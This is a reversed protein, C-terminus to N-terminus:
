VTVALLEPPDVVVDIDIVIFRAAGVAKDYVVVDATYVLSATIALLMGVTVPVTVDHDTVGDNGAPSVSLVVVPIIDPM